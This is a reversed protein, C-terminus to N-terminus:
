VEPLVQAHRQRTQPTGVLWRPGIYGAPGVVPELHSVRKATKRRPLSGADYENVIYVHVRGPGGSHEPHAGAGYPHM